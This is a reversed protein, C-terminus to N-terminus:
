SGPVPVGPEELRPPPPPYMWRGGGGHRRSRGDNRFGPGPLGLAPLDRPLRTPTIRNVKWVGPDVEEFGLSWDTRATAFNYDTIPAKM